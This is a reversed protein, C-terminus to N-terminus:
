LRDSMNASKLRQGVSKHFKVYMTYCVYNEELVVNSNFTFLALPYKREDPAM